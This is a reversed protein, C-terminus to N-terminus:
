RIQFPSPVRLLSPGSADPAMGQTQCRIPWCHLSGPATAVSSLKPMTPSLRSAQASGRGASTSHGFRFLPRAHPEFLEGESPEDILRNLAPGLALREAELPPAPREGLKAIFDIADRSAQDRGADLGALVDAEPEAIARFVQE